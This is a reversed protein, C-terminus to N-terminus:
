AKSEPLQEMVCGVLGKVQRKDINSVVAWSEAGDRKAERVILVFAEGELLEKMKAALADTTKDDYIM